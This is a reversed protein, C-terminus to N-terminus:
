EPDNWEMCIAHHCEGGNWKWGMWKLLAKVPRESCVVFGDGVPVGV